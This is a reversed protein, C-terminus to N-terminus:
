SNLHLQWRRDTKASPAAEGCNSSGTYAGLTSSEWGEPLSITTGSGMNAVETTQEDARMIAPAKRKDIEAYVWLKYDTADEVPSWSAVFYDEGKEIASEEDPVPVGSPSGGAVDFTIIGNEEQINTIPLDIVAGSWEVFAPNTTGTFETKNYTGPGHGAQWSQNTKRVETQKTTLRLLTLERTRHLTTLETTAGFPLM